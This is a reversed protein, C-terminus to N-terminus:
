ATPPASRARAPAPSTARRKPSRWCRAATRISTATAATATSRCRSRAIPARSACWAPAWGRCTSRTPRCWTTTSATSGASAPSPRRRWCGDAARRERGDAVADGARWRRSISRRCTPWTSRRRGDSPPLGAGRRDARPESDRRRGDGREKVRLMGDDTVEGIRVAHLDWKDFIREVEAERGQKVVLLMREQSESLM